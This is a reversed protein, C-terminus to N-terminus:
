GKQMVFFASGYWKQHKKFLDVERQERDLAALAEPDGAYSERLERIRMELPGYYEKWWADEPLAFHGVPDYGRPPIQELNEPVTCIAPNRAMLIAGKSSRNRAMLIAGKSPHNRAKWYAHIDPPPDPRLWVMEHVALFGGPKILRRWADLGRAFGVVFIGGETWVVDFCEDPFSMDSMSCRVVHVRGALGAEEIKSALIELSPTHIDLGVVQGRSLRALELTPGGRGCGVDLICPSELAPLMQFAQRTYQYRGLGGIPLHDHIESILDKAM